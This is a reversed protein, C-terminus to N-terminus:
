RSVAASLDGASLKPSGKASKEAGRILEILKSNVPTQVGHKAGLKVIEGNLFDVETIRGRELDEWMSSRAQPDVKVMAAAVRLFLWNPLGMAVPALAPILRGIRVPKIGAAKLVSLGERLVAAMVKRYGPTSLQERLPVGSLANVANNLNVLLKTWAVRELNEHLVVEFGAEVLARSLPGESGELELPGSTGNHLHTESKWLVNFPVMGARVDHGPLKERLTPANSVGNQFSAVVASPPLVKALTEGAEATAASKVTVFVAERDALRGSDSTYLLKEPPVQWRAGSYDTLTLGQQALNPKPRGLLVVDHGALILRGGLWGGIAGAGFVGIKM